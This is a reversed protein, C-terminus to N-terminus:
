RWMSMTKVRTVSHFGLVGGTKGLGSKKYGGFPNFPGSFDCGNHSLSGTEIRQAFWRFREPSVTYVYGSLGYDTANAIALAEADNRFPIITLVPGFLEESWARMSSNVGVLLTPPYYAGRLSDAVEGCRIVHAGKAAADAVQEEILLRQREAVLPGFVSSEDLPDGVPLSSIYDALLKVTRDYIKEHVILRKLGCCIQGNNIFKSWFISELNAELDVDECVIGADSGGLELVCPIFRDACIRYLKRGVQSSGTFFLLDIDATALAEGVRGDGYVQNFVGIPLKASAILQNLLSGFLPVEESVKYVVTNGALLSQVAGMVFNSIPFNWPSIVANVGYPERIQTHIEKDNEFTVTPQLATAANELYWQFHNLAWDISSRVQSIPSGMERSIMVELDTRRDQLISFIHRLHEVRAGVELDRWGPYAAKAASVASQIDDHTSAPVEGLKAFDKSPDTSIILQRSSDQMELIYGAAGRIVLRQPLPV